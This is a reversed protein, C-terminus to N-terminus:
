TVILAETAVDSGVDTPDVGDDRAGRCPGSRGMQAPKGGAGVCRAMVPNQATADASAWMQAANVGDVRPQVLRVYYTTHGASPATFSYRGESDTTQAALLRGQKSYLRVTQGGVGPDAEESTLEGDGDGDLRVTGGIVPKVGVDGTASPVPLPTATPGAASASGNLEPVISLLGVALAATM